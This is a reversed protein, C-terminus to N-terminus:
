RKSFLQTVKRTVLQAGMRMLGITRRWFMLLFGTVAALASALPIMADPGIYM